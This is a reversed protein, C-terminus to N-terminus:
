QQIRNSGSLPGALTEIAKSITTEGQRVLDWESKIKDEQESLFANWVREKLLREFWFRSQALRQQVIQPGLAQQCETLHAWIQALHDGTQSSATIVQPTWNSHRPPIWKLAHLLETQTNRTAVPDIDAKHIVILDAMEMIGRKLGQLEDGTHAMTMLLFVDTMQSVAIENQGTGVTEVLILDYGAAECALITELTRRAVGGLNGSTPSPRIFTDPHTSLNQMRSKDGLISGGSKSSSPDIALVAIKKPPNPIDGNNALLRMGLAEIFSSKGVGPIGSIGVRLSHGALPILRELLLAAQEQHDIRESEILTIAKALARRQGTLLKPLETDLDFTKM